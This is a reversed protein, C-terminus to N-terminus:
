IISGWDVAGGIWQVGRQLADMNRWGRVQPAGPKWRALGTYLHLYNFIYINTYMYVYM